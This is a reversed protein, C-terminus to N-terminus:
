PSIGRFREMTAVPAATDNIRFGKEGERKTWRCPEEEKKVRPATM